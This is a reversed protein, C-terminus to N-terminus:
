LVDYRSTMNESQSLSRVSRRDIHSVHYPVLKTRAADEATVVDKDDFVFVVEGLIQSTGYAAAATGDDSGHCRCVLGDVKEFRLRNGERYEVDGEITMQDVGDGVLEHIRVNRDNERRAQWIFHNRCGIPM